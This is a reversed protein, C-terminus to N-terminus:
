ADVNDRLLEAFLWLPIVAYADAISKRPRKHISAFRTTGANDSEVEAEKQATALDIQKTAKLELTWGPIGAIDGRDNIGGMVRREAHPHGNAVLFDVADQEFKSGKAKSKNAV